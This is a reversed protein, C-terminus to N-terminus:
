TPVLLVPAVELLVDIVPLPLEVMLAFLVCVEVLLVTLEFEVDTLLLVVLPFM